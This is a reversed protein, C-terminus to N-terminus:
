TLSQPSWTALVCVRVRVCARVRVLVRARACVCVCVCVGTDWPSASLTETTAHLDFSLSKQRGCFDTIALTCFEHDKTITHSSDNQISLRHAQFLFPILVTLPKEPKFKSHNTLLADLFYRGKAPTQFTTAGWPSKM